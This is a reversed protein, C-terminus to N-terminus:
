SIVLTFTPLDATKSKADTVRVSMGAFSGTESPTGAVAGTSTNLTLGAPWTGVKSYAYPTTGNAATTTFGTYAVGSTGTLVPTGSIIPGLVVAGKRAADGWTGPGATAVAAEAMTGAVDGGMRVLDGLFSPGGNSLKTNSM